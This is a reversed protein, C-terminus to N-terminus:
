LHWWFQLSSSTEKSETCLKAIHSVFEARSITNSFLPKRAPREDGGFFKWEYFQTGYGVLHM